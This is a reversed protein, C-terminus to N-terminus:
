VGSATSRASPKGRTITQPTLRVRPHERQSRGKAQWVNEYAKGAGEHNAVNVTETDSATLSLLSTIESRQVNQSSSVIPRM